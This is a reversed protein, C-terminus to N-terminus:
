NRKQGQPRNRGEFDRHVSSGGLRGITLLQGGLLSKELNPLQFTSSACLNKLPALSKCLTKFRNRGLDRHM